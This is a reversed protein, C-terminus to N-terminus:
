EESFCWNILKTLPENGSAIKLNEPVNKFSYAAKTFKLEQGMLDSSVPELMHDKLDMLAVKRPAISGLLDPLDYVTLAGAVGWSFDLDYPHWYGGNARPTLGLKYSRNMAVSRYSIPLGILTVNKISNNFAAAHLLPISMRGIGVGGINDPNVDNREKLYNVIRVIDGAQLGVVSRGILVATYGDAIGRTATNKIEGIGPVDAAAVIYGMKVLREIEGGAKAESAKGEPHLYVLAPFKFSSHDPVFLLFPLAYEGEGLIAYKSVTYGDRQYRGNLYAETKDNGPEIYGSIEKAKMEVQSLHKPVSSRSEELLEILKETEKKNVDFVMNGGLYTSVQGTPTVQLEKEPIVEHDEEAPSGTLNFHEMFFKYIETRIKPTMWHRSDDEVFKLNKTAGLAEYALKAEKYAEMAGQHSLYEDQSVFTLLTPKPARVEVLDEFTIGSKLGHYFESEADQAGKTELQRRSATSWSCPIAVKVRDDFAMIYSTVTGGGSFGTVGIREPDVEKRSVLYDIARIGDWTFYKALSSGSLFCQNGTYCHEEVSYGVSSFGVEPDYNQVHEGQGIPDIAFVIIGKKVLNQIIVQYLEARFSEQNHGMVNLVAPAKSKIKEPLFLCGTVYFGPFSEYIIKEIRFGKKKIIGTVKPNLAAREPFPGVIRLLTKKVFEQRKKWDEPTKIKDIELDREALLDFAQKNLHHILFSGPNNWRNWQHFVNLNEEEKELALDVKKPETLLQAKLSYIGSLLFAALFYM